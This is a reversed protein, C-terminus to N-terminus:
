PKTSRFRFTVAAAARGPLKKEDNNLDFAEASVPVLVHDPFGLDSGILENEPDLLADQLAVVGVTNDDGTSAAQRSGYDRDAILVTFSWDQTFRILQPHAKDEEFDRDTWVVIAIRDDGFMFLKKIAATLSKKHFLEVKNFALRETAHDRLPLAKIRAELAKMIELTISM